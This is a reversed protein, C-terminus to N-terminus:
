AASSTEGSVPSAPLPVVVIELRCGLAQAYRHLTEFTPSPADPSELDSLTAPPMGARQSLEALSMGLEERRARLLNVADTLQHRKRLERGLAKNAEMGALEERVAQRYREREEATPSYSHHRDTESEGERSAIADALKTYQLHM